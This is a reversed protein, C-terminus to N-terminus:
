FEYRAGVNIQWRNDLDEGFSKEVDCWLKTNESVSLDTGLGVNWWTSHGSFSEGYMTTKGLMSIGRRANFEHLVDAKFYVLSDKVENNLSFNYGTRFGARAIFSNISDIKGKVGGETTFREGNLHSFQMQLQPEVFFQNSFDYKYGGELSGAYFRQKLDAGIKSGASNFLDYSSDVVGGKFVVDFYAGNDMLYTYYMNLAYRESDGTGSIDDLDVSADTYDFAMGVYHKGHNDAVYRDYGLQVMSTDMELINDLATDTYAYRLWLGDEAGSKVYRSEGRRKNFTDMETALLYAAKAAGKAFTVNENNQDSVNKTLYYYTNNKIIESETDFYFDNVEDARSEVLGDASTAFSTNGDEVKAFYLKNGVSMDSLHAKDHNFEVFQQSDAQSNTINVFDSNATHSTKGQNTEWDLDMKFTGGTGKLNGITVSSHKGEKERYDFLNKQSTGNEIQTDTLAIETGKYLGQILDDDLIVIGEDLTLNSLENTNTCELATKSYYIWSAGDKLTVDVTNKTNSDGVVSGYWFSDEGSLTMKVAGESVASKVDISGIIKVIAGSIEAKSTDAVTIATSLNNAEGGDVAALYIRDLDRFEITSGGKAYIAGNNDIYGPQKFLLWGVASYHAPKFTNVIEM